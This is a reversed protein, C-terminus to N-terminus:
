RGDNAFRVTPDADNRRFTMTWDEALARKGHADASKGYLPLGKRVLLKVDTRYAFDGTVHLHPEYRSTKSNYEAHYSFGIVGENLPAVEVYRRVADMDPREALHINLLSDGNYEVGVVNMEPEAPKALELRKAEEAIERKAQEDATEGSPVTGKEKGTEKPVTGELAVPKDSLISCNHEKEYNKVKLITWSLTVLSALAIATTAALWGVMFKKNM